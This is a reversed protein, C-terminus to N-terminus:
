FLGFNKKLELKEAETIEALIKANENHGVHWLDGNTFDASRVETGSENKILRIVAKETKLVYQGNGVTQMEMATSGNAARKLEFAVHLWLDDKQNRTNM